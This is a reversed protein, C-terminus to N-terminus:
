NSSVMNSHLLHHNNFLNYSSSVMYNNNSLPVQFWVFTHLSLCFSFCHSFSLFFSFSSFLFISLFLLFIFSVHFSIRFLSLRFLFFIYWEFPFTFGLQFHFQFYFLLVFHRLLSFNYLRLFDSFSSSYKGWMLSNSLFSPPLCLFVIFFVSIFSLCFLFLSLFLSLLSHPLCDSTFLWFLLKVLVKGVLLIHCLTM